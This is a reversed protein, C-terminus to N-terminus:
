VEIKESKILKLHHKKGPEFHILEIESSFMNDFFKTISSVRGLYSIKTIGGSIILSSDNNEYFGYAKTPRFTKSPGVIGKHTNNNRFRMPKLGAHMHGCLILNMDKIYNLDQRIMNDKILPIPTHSLLINFKNPNIKVDNKYYKEFDEVKEKNKYWEFPLTLSNVDIDDTISIFDISNNFVKVNKLSSLKNYFSNDLTINNSRDNRVKILDHNGKVIYISTIKSIDKIIKVLEDNRKDEITDVLDGSILIIKIQFKKVIKEINKLKIINSHIDSICMIDIKNKIKPSSLDYQNIVFNM